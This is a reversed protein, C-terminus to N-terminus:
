LSYLCISCLQCTSFSPIFSSLVPSNHQTNPLLSPLLSQCFRCAHNFRGAVRDLAGSTPMSRAVGKVGGRDASFYPICRTAYAAIIAISDSPTVFFRRGLIMNRDADGDAAAGFVPETHTNARLRAHYQCLLCCVCFFPLLCIVSSTSEGTAPTDPSLLTGDKKLGMKAVLESAYTLNPDPHGGNFDEAPVGNMLVSADCGLTDVFLHKAFPGAVGHMSDYTLSFDDRRLLQQIADFDFIGRMLETYEACADVVVVACDAGFAYTGPQTVDFVPKADDIKYETIVKSRAFIANTLDVMAPGGNAINYKIGFDADPGGPNHSATLVIGGLSKRQRITNSVCPTSMLFDVGVVVRAVGNARAMRIIIEAAERNFYRGDGSVVLESGVLDTAALSDFISQVFNHLYNEQQFTKVTKRLGSTGPKQDSYPTTKVITM